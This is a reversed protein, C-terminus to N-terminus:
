VDFFLKKSAKLLELNFFAFECNLNITVLFLELNFFTFIQHLSQSIKIFKTIIILWAYFLVFNIGSYILIFLVSANLELYVFFHFQTIILLQHLSILLAKFLCKRILSLKSDVFNLFDHLQFTVNINRCFMDRHFNNLFVYFWRHM